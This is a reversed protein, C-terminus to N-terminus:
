YNKNKFIHVTSQKDLLVWYKPILNKNALIIESTAVTPLTTSITNLAFNLQFEDNESEHEQTNVHLNTQVIAPQKQTQTTPPKAKNRSTNTPADTGSAQCEKKTCNYKGCKCRKVSTLFSLAQNLKQTDDESESEDHQEHILKPTKEQPVYYCLMTYAAALTPPYQDNKRAYQNSLEIKLLRYREECSNDLFVIAAEREKAQSTYGNYAVNGPLHLTTDITNGDKIMELHVMAKYPEHSGGYHTLVEM